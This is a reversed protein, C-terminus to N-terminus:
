IISTGATVWPGQLMNAWSAWGDWGGVKAFRDLYPVRSADKAFGQVQGCPWSCWWPGPNGDRPSPLLWTNVDAGLSGGSRHPELAPPLSQVSVQFGSFAVSTLVKMLSVSTNCCIWFLEGFQVNVKGAYLVWMCWTVLCIRCFLNNFGRLQLFSLNKHLHVGQRSWLSLSYYLQRM